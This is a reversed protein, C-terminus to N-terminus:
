PVASAVCPASVQLATRTAVYPLNNASMAYYVRLGIAYCHMSRAVDTGSIAYYVRLGIAYCRISRAVGTGSMTYRADQGSLLTIGAVGIKNDELDPVLLRQTLVPCQTAAYALDTGPM